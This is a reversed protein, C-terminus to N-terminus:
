RVPAPHFPHEFSLYLFVSREGDSGDVGLPFALGPVIQLGSPHDIAVRIGPSVFFSESETVFPGFRDGGADHRREWLAELLLNLRPRALWVIGQALHFSNSDAEWGFDVDQQPTYSGGVNWHAAWRDGLTVSVPLNAELGVTGSGFGRTRDGTPLLISVLPAVAVPGGEMGRWQYRYNLGVDGVSQRGAIRRVPVTYSVQHRQGPAPWEQTFSFSWDSGEDPLELTAIHQVVGPEQNYAEEVLFSNDSIPEAAAVSSACALV